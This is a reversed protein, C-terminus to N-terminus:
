ENAKEFFSEAFLDSNEIFIEIECSSNHTVGVIVERENYRPANMLIMDQDIAQNCIKASLKYIVVNIPLQIIDKIYFTSRAPYILQAEQNINLSENNIIENDFELDYWTTAHSMWSMSVLIFVFLYKM